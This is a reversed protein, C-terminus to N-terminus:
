QRELIEVVNRILTFLMGFAILVAAAVASAALKPHKDASLASLSILLMAVLFSIDLM